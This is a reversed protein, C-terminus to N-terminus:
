SNLWNNRLKLQLTTAFKKGAKIDKLIVSVDSSTDSIVLTNISFYNTHTKTVMLTFCSVSKILIYNHKYM